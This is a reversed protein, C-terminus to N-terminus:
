REAVLFPIISREKIFTTHAPHKTEQCLVLFDDVPINPTSDGLYYVPIRRIRCEDIFALLEQGPELSDLIVCSPKKNLENLATRYIFPTLVTTKPLKYKQESIILTRKDEM